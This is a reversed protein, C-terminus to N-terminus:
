DNKPRILNALAVLLGLGWGLPVSIALWMLVYGLGPLGFDEGFTELNGAAHFYENIGGVRLPNALIWAALDYSAPLIISGLPQYSIAAVIPPLFLATMAAPYALLVTTARGGVRSFLVALGAAVTAVASAALVAMFGDFPLRIRALVTLGGWVVVSVLVVGIIGLRTAASDFKGAYFRTAFGILLMPYGIVVLPLGIAAWAYYGIKQPLTEPMWKGLVRSPNLQRPFLIEMWTEHLRIIDIRIAGLLGPSGRSM